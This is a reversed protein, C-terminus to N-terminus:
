SATFGSEGEKPELEWKELKVVHARPPGRDIDKLLKKLSEEDGQAEGDVKGDPTNEVRGTL